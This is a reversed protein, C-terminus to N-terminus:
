FKKNHFYFSVMAPNEKASTATTPATPPIGGWGVRHTLKVM